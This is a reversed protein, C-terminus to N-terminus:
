KKHGFNYQLSLQYNTRQSMIKLESEELTLQQQPINTKFGVGIKLQDTVNRYVNLGLRYNLFAKKYLVNKGIGTGIKNKLLIQLEAGARFGFSYKGKEFTYGVFLPITFYQVKYQHTSKEDEIRKSFTTDITEDITYRTVIRGLSDITRYSDVTDRTIVRVTDIFEKNRKHTVQNRLSTFGIGTGITVKSFQVGSSVGYAMSPLSKFQSNVLSDHVKDTVGSKNSLYSIYPEVFIQPKPVMSVLKITSDVIYVEKHVIVKKHVIITDMVQTSDVEQAYTHNMVGYFFTVFLFFLVQNLTKM